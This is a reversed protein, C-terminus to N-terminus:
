LGGFYTQTWGSMSRVKSRFEPLREMEKELQERGGGGAYDKISKDPVDFFRRTTDSPCGCLVILDAGMIYAIQMAFSGSFAFCPTLYEWLYDVVPRATASHYSCQEMVHQQQWRVAKWGGLNDAHLSAWHDLKPIYMGVDNAAFVVPDNLKSLALTFEDFVGFAGGCVIAPRGRLTDILPAVNGQGAYGRVEWAANYNGM